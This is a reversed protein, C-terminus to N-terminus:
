TQPFAQWAKAESSRVCIESLLVGRLGETLDALPTRQAARWGPGAELVDAYDSYLVALAELYAEPNGAPLSVCAAAEETMDEAGRRYTLDAKGLRSLQLTEPQEQRWELTGKTGVIKFRLDNRHGPAALSCWLLGDAGGEFEMQVVGTDDLGFGDVTTSLKANVATCRRGSVFELINFAHTGVDGLAGTPGAKGPDGRWVGGKGLKTPDGALWELLYEVYLFKVEGIEGNRVRARADRVMPYGTYTYTVAAFTDNRAALRILEEAEASANVLPKDCIVPIGAELFLRCPEFHLHNPTVIVAVDIGDERAAEAGAMEAFTRYTRDPAVCLAQGAERSVAADSSFVGAVVDFRGTLRMAARHIGAFFSGRGGGIMGARIRKRAPIDSILNPM